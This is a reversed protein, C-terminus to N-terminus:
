GQVMLGCGVIWLGKQRDNPVRVTANHLHKDSECAALLGHDTEGFLALLCCGVALGCETWSCKLRFSVLTSMGQCATRCCGPLCSSRRPRRGWTTWSSSFLLVHWTFPSGCSHKCFGFMRFPPPFFYKNHGGFNSTLGKKLSCFLM